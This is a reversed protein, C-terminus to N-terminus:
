VVKIPPQLSILDMWIKIEQCINPQLGHLQESTCGQARVEPGSCGQEPLLGLRGQRWSTCRNKLTHLCCMPLVAEYCLTALNEMLFERYRIKWMIGTGWGFSVLREGLEGHGLSHQPCPQIRLCSIPDAKLALIITSFAMFVCTRSTNGPHWM